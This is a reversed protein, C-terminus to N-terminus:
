DASSQIYISQNNTWVAWLKGKNDFTATATDACKSLPPTKPDACVGKKPQKHSMKKEAPKSKEASKSDSQAAPKVTTEDTACGSVIMSALLLIYPPFKM